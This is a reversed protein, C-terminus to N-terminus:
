RGGRRRHADDLNRILNYLDREAIVSGGVNITVGAMRPTLSSTTRPPVNPQTRGRGGTGPQNLQAGGGLHSRIWNILDILHQIAAMVTNIPGTFAGIIIGGVGALASRISAPIRGFQRGIWSVFSQVIRQAEPLGLQDSIWKGTGGWNWNAPNLWGEITRLQRRAWEDIAHETGPGLGIAALFKEPTVNKKSWADLRKWVDGLSKGMGSFISATVKSWDTEEIGQAIADVLGQQKEVDWEIIQGSPLKLPTRTTEGFLAVRLNDIFAKAAEKVGTLVVKVHAVFGEARTFRRFFKTVSPIVNGVIEGALNRFSEKLVDVQGAFTQGVAKATGGFEKTLEHLILKQAELHKGSEDLKTILDIQDQTFSVGVRRLATLGITPNQLAKGVQIASQQLDQGLAVSLDESIVTAQDFIDNGKGVENRINTFTLLMNEGRTILEDDIGTLKLQQSALDKVHQATIGAIGGTSKLVANTQAVEKQGERFEDFGVKATIGLGVGVALGAAKAAVGIAHGVHGMTSGAHSIGREFRSTDADLVAQLKAVTTAM